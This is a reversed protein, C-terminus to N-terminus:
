TETSLSVIFIRFSISNTFECLKSFITFYGIDWSRFNDELLKTVVNELNCVGYTFYRESNTIKDKDVFVYTYFSFKSNQHKRGVCCTMLEKQIYGTDDTSAFHGELILAKLKNGKTTLLLDDSGRYIPGLLIPIWSWTVIHAGYWTFFYDNVACGMCVRSFDWAVSNCPCM